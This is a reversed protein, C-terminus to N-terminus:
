GEGGVVDRLWDSINRGIVEPQDEQVHHIGAGIFRTQVNNVVQPIFKAAARSVLVIDELGLSEILGEVHAYHSHFTYEIDPKDSAGMGILDLAFARHDDSVFPIINRWLYSSTRNGYIFLAFPEAGEELYTMRHGNVDVLRHEFPFEASITAATASRLAM